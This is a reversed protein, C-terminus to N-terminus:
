IAYASGEMGAMMKRYMEALGTEPQWILARLKSTDLNMHLTPAYGLSAAEAEEIRVAIRGGAIEDAVLRAMEYISCYTEENAANYAQGAEGRLLVTFIANVADDVDLYSRRTEGRTKLVIDRGELACRAFEAFVRGDGYDVGRGFTQTLRLVKAPVARAACYAACLCEALRKSEPYSSRVAMTDLHAAHTEGVKEDSDFIGYVEMTSLYVFASLKEHSAYDLLRRTGEITTGITGIPDDIFARSSTEAAAHVVYDARVGGLEVERIDGVLLQMSDTEPGFLRRAKAEDRISAAIHVPRECTRNYDLLARVLARGILGTAGTILITKDSFATLEM